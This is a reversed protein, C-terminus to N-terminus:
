HSPCPTVRFIAPSEGHSFEAREKERSGKQHHGGGGFATVFKRDIRGIVRLFDADLRDFGPVRCAKERRALQMGVHPGRGGKVAVPRLEHVVDPGQM